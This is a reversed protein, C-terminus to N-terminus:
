KKYPNTAETRWGAKSASVLWDLFDKEIEEDSIDDSFRAMCIVAKECDPHSYYYRIKKM